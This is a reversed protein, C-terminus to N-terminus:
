TKLNVVHLAEVRHVLVQEHLQRSLLLDRVVLALVPSAILVIEHRGWAKTRAEAQSGALEAWIGGLGFLIKDSCPTTDTIDALFVHLAPNRVNYKCSPPQPNVYKPWVM